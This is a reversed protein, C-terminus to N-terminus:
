RSRAAGIFARILEPDKVGRTIEVGSSVDVGDADCAALAAGVNAPTLGGALLWPLPAHWGRLLSPDLHAANGGPMAAGAPAAAEIVYGDIAEGEPPLDATGTVAVARWVTMGFIARLEAARAADTYLQLIDLPVADLADEIQRETPAVFLGVRLPGGPHRASLAEAMPPTLARPSGHAFVFGIYDAGGACAADMAAPSNVGCIKVRTPRM